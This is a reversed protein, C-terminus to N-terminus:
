EETLLLCCVQFLHLWVFLFPGCVAFFFISHFRRKQVSFLVTDSGDEHQQLGAHSPVENCEDWLRYPLKWSVFVWDETGCRYRVHHLRIWCDVSWKSAPQREDIYESPTKTHLIFFAIWNEKYKHKMHSERNNIWKSEFLLFFWSENYHPNRNWNHKRVRQFRNIPKWDM